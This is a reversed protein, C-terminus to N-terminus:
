NDIFMKCNKYKDFTVWAPMGSITTNLPAHVTAIPKASDCTNGKFKTLIIMSSLAPITTEKIAYLANMLLHAFTIQQSMADYIKKNIHKFNIGFINDNIDKVVTVTHVFKRGRIIVPIEFFGFSNMRSINAAVCGEGKQFLKPKNDKFPQCFSNANM